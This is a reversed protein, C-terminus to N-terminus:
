GRDGSREAYVDWGYLLLPTVVSEYMGIKICYECEKIEMHEKLDWIIENWEWGILTIM